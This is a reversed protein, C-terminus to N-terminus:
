CRGVRWLALATGGAVAVQAAIGWLLQARPATRHPTAAHLPSIDLVYRLPVDVLDPLLAGLVGLGIAAPRAGPCRAVLWLLFAGGVIVEMAAEVLAVRRVSASCGDFTEAETHPVADLLYHSALGGGWGVLPTPAVQGILAGTLMHALPHM